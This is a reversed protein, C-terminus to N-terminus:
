CTELGILVGGADLQAVTRARAFVVEASALLVADRLAIPALHNSHQPIWNSEPVVEASMQAHLANMEQLLVDVNIMLESEPRCVDMCVHMVCIVPTTVPCARVKACIHAWVDTRVTLVCGLGEEELNSKYKHKLVKELTREEGIWYAAVAAIHPIMRRDARKYFMFLREQLPLSGIM